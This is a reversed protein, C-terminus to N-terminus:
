QSKELDYACRFGLTSTTTNADYNSRSQYRLFTAYHAEDFEPMFRATDGCSGALLDIKEGNSFLLQYDEVWELVLGHLDHIGLATEPGSGVAKLDGSGPNTYWSFLARAYDEDSQGEVARLRASVYEWEEMTPLRGEQSQCYARAAYWSVRTVPRDAAADGSGLTAPGPWHALYSGDRFIGPTRDRRWEPAKQTFTLFDGNSVQTTDLRFADVRTTQEAEDVLIPQVFDGGDIRVTEASLSASALLALLLATKQM